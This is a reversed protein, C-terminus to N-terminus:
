LAHDAPPAVRDPAEIDIVRTLERRVIRWAGDIRRYRDRYEGVLEIGGVPVPLTGRPGYVALGICFGEAEDASIVTIRANSLMHRRLRDSAKVTMDVGRRLGDHGVMEAVPLAPVVRAFVADESFLAVFADVDGGDLHINYDTMLRLCATEILLREIETMM